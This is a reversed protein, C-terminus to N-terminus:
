STGTRRPRRRRGAATGSRSGAPARRSGAAPRSAAPRRLAEARHHGHRDGAREGVLHGTPRMTGNPSTAMMPPMNASVWSVAVVGYASCGGPRQEDHAQAHARVIIGIMVEASFVSFDCSTARPEVSIFMMWCIAEDIPTATMDTIRVLPRLFSGSSAADVAKLSAVAPTLSGACSPAM